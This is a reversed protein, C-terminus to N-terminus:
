FTNTNQLTNNYVLNYKCNFVMNTGSNFQYMGYMTSTSTSSFTNNRFQNYSTSVQASTGGTSSGYIGYFSGATPTNSQIINSDIRVINPNTADGGALAHYIGYFTSSSVINQITNGCITAWTGSLAYIGGSTTSTATTSSSITNNRITIQRNNGYYIGYASTAAGGFNTITNNSVINLTDNLCEGTAAVVNPNAGLRIGTYCNNLTNNTISVKNRAAQATTAYTSNTFGTTSLNDHNAVYIGNGATFASALSISCNTIAVDNSGDDGSCKLVAYGWEM